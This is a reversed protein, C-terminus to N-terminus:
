AFRFDNGLYPIDLMLDFIREKTEGRSTIEMRARATLDKIQLDVEKAHAVIAGTSLQGARLVAVMM